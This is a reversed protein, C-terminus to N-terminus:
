EAPHVDPRRAAIRDVYALVVGFVVFAVIIGSLIIPHDIV